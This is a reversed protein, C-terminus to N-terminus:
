GKLKKRFKELIGKLEFAVRGGKIVFIINPELDTEEKKSVYLDIRIEPPINIARYLSPKEYVIIMKNVEQLFKIISDFLAALYKDSENKLQTLKTEIAPHIQKWESLKFTIEAKTLNFLIDYLEGKLEERISPDITEESDIKEIMEKIKLIIQKVDGIKETRVREIFRRVNKRLNLYEESRYKNIEAILDVAVFPDAKKATEIATLQTQTLKGARANDVWKMYREHEKIFRKYILNVIEKCLRLKSGTKIKELAQRSFEVRHWMIYPAIAYVISVPVEELGLLWSLAKSYRRLDQTVRVSPPSVIKNCVSFRTNYHCGECMEPVNRWSGPENICVVMSRVLYTIFFSTTEPLEIGDVIYWISKITNEDLVGPIGSKDFSHIREDERFLIKHLEGWKPMTVPVSISFRDLFPLGMEFTGVDHPNLTAYLVYDKVERVKGAYTVVGEALMSFLIDQITPPLRNVEDIIKWFSDIFPRWQVVEKGKNILKGLDFRAIIKEESLHPHGRLISQEIVSIDKDTMMAGLVKVLTTKGGGHGGYLLMTGRPVLANIVALTLILPLRRRKGDVDVILEEHHLFLRKSEIYTMIYRIQNRLIEDDLKVVVM